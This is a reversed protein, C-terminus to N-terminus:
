GAGWRNALREYDEASKASPRLEFITKAEEPTKALYECRHIGEALFGNYQKKVSIMSNRATETDRLFTPLMVVRSLRPNDQRAAYLNEMAGDIGLTSLFETKFPIILTDSALLSNRTIADYGPANDIIVFDYQKKIQELLERLVTFRKMTNLFERAGVLESDSPVVDWNNRGSSVIATTLPVNRPALLPADIGVEFNLDLYLAIHGQWDMGITLIRYGRKALAHSLHIATTTKGTGGKGILISIVEM